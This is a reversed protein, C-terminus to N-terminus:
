RRGSAEGSVMVVRGSVDYVRLGKFGRLGVEGGRLLPQPLWAHEARSLIKISLQDLM